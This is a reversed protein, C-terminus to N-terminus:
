ATSARGLPEQAALRECFRRLADEWAPMSVGRGEAKSCDLVSYRPRRVKSPFADCTTPSLVATGGTLRTLAEALQFRTCCGRGALHFIGGAGADVLGIIGRALDPVYTPSGTEDTVVSLEPRRAALALIKLPFNSGREFYSWATRVILADPFVESVAQEGALKSAGYVNLPNAADTEVYPAGKEGDFVFDTSVHVFRLRHDAAAEALLRPGTENVLYAGRPDDEAGEVNTYAAANLVCGPEDSAQAFARVAEEVRRADTIDLEREPLCVGPTGRSELEEALATGLMGSAGAILYRM